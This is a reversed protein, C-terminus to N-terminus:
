ESRASPPLERTGKGEQLPGVLAPPQVNYIGNDDLTATALWRKKPDVGWDAHAIVAPSSL